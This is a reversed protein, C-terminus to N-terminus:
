QVEKKGTVYEYILSKRYEELKIVISSKLEILKDIEAIRKDLYSVIEDQEKVSSTYIIEMNNFNSITLQNITATLYTGLYFKFVNSDLIYKIYKPNDKKVRFIMMFAGFTSYGIDDIIANKGILDRSGNRSCILIDGKKVILDNKINKKVYVNDDLFIKGDHVNSSRLVLIGEKQEVIDNPNYILGNRAIGLHKMKIRTWDSPIKGIWDVGSDKFEVSPNIGKTVVESILSQKYKKLKEIQKSINIILSDIIFTNKEIHRVICKQMELPFDLIRENGYVSFYIHPITAKDGNTNSLDLADISYKLYKLDINNDDAPVIYSMTGILSSYSEYIQSRGIGAGDKIIGIYEKDYEYTDLYGILGSAGFVKYKGFDRTDSQKISSSFSNAVYKLKILNNKNM